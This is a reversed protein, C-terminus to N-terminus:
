NTPLTLHTYSVTQKTAAAVRKQKKMSFYMLGGLGAFMLVPLLLQEM